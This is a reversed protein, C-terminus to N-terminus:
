VEVLLSRPLSYILPYGLRARLYVEYNERGDVTRYSFFRGM